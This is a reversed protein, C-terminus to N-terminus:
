LYSCAFLHTKLKSKFTSLPMQQQRLDTPLSSWTTAAQKSFRRDGYQHLRTKPVSLLNQSQSRLGRGPQYPILLNSLYAPALSNLSKYTMLAVKYKIRARVPLWHLSKLVPKMHSHWPCRSVVRAASYQVRQLKQVLKDTSGSLLSNCYDLRSLIVAQVITKTADTTLFRRM